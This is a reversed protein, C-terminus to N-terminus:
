VLRKLINAAAHAIGIDSSATAVDFVGAVAKNIDGPLGGISSAGSLIYSDANGYSIYQKQTPFTLFKRYASGVIRDVGQARAGQVADAIAQYGPDNPAFRVTAKNTSSSLVAESDSLQLQLRELYDFGYKFEVRENHRLSFDMTFNPSAPTTAVLM